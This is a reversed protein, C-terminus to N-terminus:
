SGSPSRRSGARAVEALGVVDAFHDRAEHVARAELLELRAVPRREDATERPQGPKRMPMTALLPMRKESDASFAVCKMWIHARRFTGSSKRCFMVPKMTPLSYSRPPMALSPALITWATALAATGFSVTIM